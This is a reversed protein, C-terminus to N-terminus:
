LAESIAKLTLEMSTRNFAARDDVGSAFKGLVRILKPRRDTTSETVKCTGDGLDEILYHWHAVKVPGVTVQIGFEKEPVCESVTSETSWKKKAAANVNNGTFKAGLAPGTAGKIWSGGRNEPSWEGMRPLDSVIAWIKSSPAAITRSVSITSMGLYDCM